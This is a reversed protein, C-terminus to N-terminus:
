QNLFEKILINFNIALLDMVNFNLLVMFHIEKAPIFLYKMILLLVLVVIFQIIKLQIFIKTITALFFIM